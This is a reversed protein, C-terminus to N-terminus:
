EEEQAYDAMAFSYRERALRRFGLTRYLISAGTNMRYSELEVGRIDNDYAWALLDDVLLRGIGGRRWAPVVYIEELWLASGPFKISVFLNALVVGIPTGDADRAVRLVQQPFAGAILRETLRQLDDHTPDEGLERMDDSFMQAIAAVDEERASTVSVGDARLPLSTDHSSM